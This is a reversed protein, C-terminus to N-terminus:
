HIQRRLAEIEERTLGTTKVVVDLSVGEALLKLAVEQRGQQIGEQRGQQIGEKRGQELGKQWGEQEAEEMLERVVDTMGMAEKLLQRQNDTMSGGSLGLILATVYNQEQRDPISQTLELVERFVEDGSRTQFHMHFAFALRVRDSETWHNSNLHRRVTDLVADGDLESLFVNDIRYIAAGIDLLDPATRVNGTYLVVTRVKLDFREALAVDYSLFRYLTRERWAGALGGGSM